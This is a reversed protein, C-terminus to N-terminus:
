IKLNMSIKTIQDETLEHMSTELFGKILLHLEKLISQSMPKSRIQVGQFTDPYCQEVVQLLEKAALGVDNERWLGVASDECTAPPKVTTHDSQLPQSGDSSSSSSPISQSSCTSVSIVEIQMEERILKLRDINTHQCSHDTETDGNTHTADDGNLMKPEKGFQHDDNSDGFGSSADAVAQDLASIMMKGINLKDQKARHNDPFMRLEHQLRICENVSEPSVFNVEVKTCSKLNRVQYPCGAPIFVADGLKQRFSWPEIGFEERLKRKHEMDLYYAREHILDIVRMMM